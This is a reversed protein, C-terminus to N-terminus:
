EAISMIFSISAMQKCIGSLMGNWCSQLTLVVFGILMKHLIDRTNAALAAFCRSFPRSKLKHWESHTPALAAFFTFCSRIMHIHNRLERRVEALQLTVEQQWDIAEGHQTAPVVTAAAIAQALGGRQCIRQWDHEFQADLVKPTPAGFQGRVWDNVDIGLHTRWAWAHRGRIEVTLAAKDGM